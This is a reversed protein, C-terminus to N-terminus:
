HNHCSQDVSKCDSLQTQLRFSIIEYISQFFNSTSQQSITALYQSTKTTTTHCDVHTSPCLYPRQSEYCNPTSMLRYPTMILSHFSSSFKNPRVYLQCGDLHEQTRRFHFRISPIINLPFLTSAALGWLKYM